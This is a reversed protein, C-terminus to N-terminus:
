KLQLLWGAQQQYAVEQELEARMLPHHELWGKPLTLTLSEAQASIHVEPLVEHRRRM